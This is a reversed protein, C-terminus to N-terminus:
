RGFIKIGAEDIKITDASDKTSIDLKWVGSSNEDLFGAAGFIAGNTYFDMAGDGAINEVIPMTTGSPSTIDIQVNGYNSMQMKAYVYIYEIAVNEGSPVEFDVTLGTQNLLNLTKEYEYQKEASLNTYGNKCREIMTKANVLGFGYDRSHKIGAKNTIWSSNRADIKKATIASLYKVDRQTLTPCAELVLALAGSVTPTAASTGNFGFTYSKVSDDEFTPASYTNWVDPSQKTDINVRKSEGTLLTTAITPTQTHWSGAYGSLWINAGPNSYPAYSNNYDLAAVVIPYKHVTTAEFNADRGEARENGAAFLIVRGKGSRLGGVASYLADMSNLAVVNANGSDGGWSNNSVVIKWNKASDNITWIDQLGSDTQNELWNSGSIKAFPAIGRVGKSNLGRAGMIGACASGHGVGSPSGAETTDDVAETPTPDNTSNVANISLDADMNPKLDEHEYEVGSDVIQVAIYNGGNYGMYSRQVELLDLDNGVITKVNNINNTLLGTSRLHWQNKYYPDFAPDIGDAIDNDNEDWSNPNMGLAVEVDDPIFDGDKDSLMYKYLEPREDFCDRGIYGENKYNADSCVGEAAIVGDKDKDNEFVSNLTATDGSIIATKTQAVLVNYANEDKLATKVTPNFNNFSNFSAEGGSSPDEAFYSKAVTQLAELAAEKTSPNERMMTMVAYTSLESIYPKDGRDLYSKPIVTYLKGQLTTSDSFTGGSITVLVLYDSDSIGYSDNNSANSAYNKYEETYKPLISAIKFGGSSEEKRALPLPEVYRVFAYHPTFSKKLRLSASGSPYASMSVSYGSLTSGGVIINNGVIQSSYLDTLSTSGSGGGSYGSGGGTSVYEGVVTTPTSTTSQSVSSSGGGGGGCGVLLLAVFVPYGYVKKIVIKEL